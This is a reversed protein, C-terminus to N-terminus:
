ELERCYSQALTGARPRKQRSLRRFRRFMRQRAPRPNRDDPYIGVGLIPFNTDPQKGLVSFRKWPVSQGVTIRDTFVRKFLMHFPLFDIAKGGSTDELYFELEATPNM